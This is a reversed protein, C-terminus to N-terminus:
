IAAILAATPAVTLQQECCECSLVPANATEDEEGKKDSHTYSRYMYELSRSNFGLETIFYHLIAASDAYSAHSLAGKIMGIVAAEAEYALKDYLAAWSNEQLTHWAPIFIMLLDLLEITKGEEQYSSSTFSTLLSSIIAGTDLRLLVCMRLKGWQFVALLVVPRDGDVIFIPLYVPSYVSPLM